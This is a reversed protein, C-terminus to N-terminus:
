PLQMRGSQWREAGSAVAREPLPKPVQSPRFGSGSCPRGARLDARARRVAEIVDLPRHWLDYEDFRVVGGWGAALLADDRATDLRTDVLSSHHAKSDIEIVLGLARDFFDVRGIWSHGGVDIQRELGVVGARSMIREFRSELGSAVVKTGIPRVNLLDRIVATGPRGRCGIEELTRHLSALMAPSRTIVTDVLRETRVPSVRGALDFITRGLSTVPIGDITTVHCPLLQKPRHVRAVVQRRRAADRFSTVEITALDFGPLRWLWAATMHSALAGPGADFVGVAARRMATPPAGALAVVRPSLRVVRGRREWTRTWRRGLGMARLQWDALVGHQLEALAGASSFAESKPDMGVRCRPPTVAGAGGGNRSHNRYRPPASVVGLVGRRGILDAPHHSPPRPALRRGRAM